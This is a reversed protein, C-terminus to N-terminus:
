PFNRSVDWWTSGQFICSIQFSTLLGFPLLVSGKQEQSWPNRPVKLHRNRAQSLLQSGPAVSFLVKFDSCLSCNGHHPKRVAAESAAVLWPSISSKPGSRGAGFVLPPIFCPPLPRVLSLPGIFM